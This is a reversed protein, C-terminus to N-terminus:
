AIGLVSLWWAFWFWWWALSDAGQVEVADCAMFAQGADTPGELCAEVDDEGLGTENARFKLLLDDIGDRNVDKLKSPRRGTPQAGEPGFLLTGVDVSEVDFSESGLLAVPVKARSSAQIHNRDSRPRIDLEPDLVQSVGVEVLTHIDTFTPHPLM